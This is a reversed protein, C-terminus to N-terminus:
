MWRNQTYQCAWGNLHKHLYWCYGAHTSQIPRPLWLAWGCSHYCWSSRKRDAETDRRGVGKREALVSYCASICVHARVYLRAHVCMKDTRELSLIFLFIICDLLIRVTDVFGLCWLGFLYHQITRNTMKRTNKNICEWQLQARLDFTPLITSPRLPSVFLSHSLSITDHDPVHWPCTIQRSSILDNM